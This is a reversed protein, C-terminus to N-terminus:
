IRQLKCTSYRRGARMLSHSSYSVRMSTNCLWFAATHGLRNGTIIALHPSNSAESEPVVWDDTFCVRLNCKQVGAKWGLSWRAPCAQGWGAQFIKLLTQPWTTAPIAVKQLASSALLILDDLGSQFKPLASHERRLPSPSSFMAQSLCAWSSVM